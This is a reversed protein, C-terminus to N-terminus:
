GALWYSIVVLTIALTFLQDLLVMPLLPSLEAPLLSSDEHAAVRHAVTDARDVLRALLGQLKQLWVSWRSMKTTQTSKDSCGVVPESTVIIEAQVLPIFDMTLLLM